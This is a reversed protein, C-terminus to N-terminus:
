LPEKIALLIHRGPWDTLASKTSAILVPVLPSVRIMSPYPLCLGIADGYTQSFTPEPGNCTITVFETPALVGAVTVDLWYPGANKKHGPLWGAAVRSSELRAALFPV